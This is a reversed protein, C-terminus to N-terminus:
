ALAITLQIHINMYPVSITHAALHMKSHPLVMVQPNVLDMKSAEQTIQNVVPIVAKLKAAHRDNFRYKVGANISWLNGKQQMIRSGDQEYERYTENYYESGVTFEVPRAAQAGVAASLALVALCFHASNKM